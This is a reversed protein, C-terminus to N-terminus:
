KSQCLDGHVSRGDAPQRRLFCVTNVDSLLRDKSDVYRTCAEDYCWGLFTSSKKVPAPLDKLITGAQYQEETITLMQDAQQPNKKTITGGNTEYKINYTTDQFAIDFTLHDTYDGTYNPKDLINCDYEQQKHSEIKRLVQSLRVM